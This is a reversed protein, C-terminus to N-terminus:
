LGLEDGLNRSPRVTVNKERQKRESTEYLGLSRESIKSEEAPERIHKKALMEMVIELQDARSKHKVVEM